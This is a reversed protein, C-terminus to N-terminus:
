NLCIKFNENIEQCKGAECDEDNQCFDGEVGNGMCIHLGDGRDACKKNRCEESSRCFQGNGGDSFCVKLSDGRSLCRGKLCSTNDSCFIQEDKLSPSESLYHYKENHEFGDGTPGSTGCSIFFFLLLVRTM